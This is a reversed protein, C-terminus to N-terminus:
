GDDMGTPRQKQEEVAVKKKRRQPKRKKVIAAGQSGDIDKREEAPQAPAVPAAPVGSGGRGEQVDRQRKRIGRVKLEQAARNKSEVLRAREYVGTGRWGRLVWMVNETRLRDRRGPFVAMSATLIDLLYSLLMSDLLAVSAPDAPAADGFAWMLDSLEAAFAGSVAASTPQTSAAGTADATPLPREKKRRRSKAAREAASSRVAGGDIPVAATTSEGVAATSAIAKKSSRPRKKKAVIPDSGPTPSAIDVAAM